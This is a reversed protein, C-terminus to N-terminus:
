KGYANERSYAWEKTWSLKIQAFFPSLAHPRALSNVRKLAGGEKKGLAIVHCSSAGNEDVQKRDDGEVLIM